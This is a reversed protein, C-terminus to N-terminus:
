DTEEFEKRVILFSNFFAFLTVGTQSDLTNDTMFSSLAMALFMVFLYDKYYFKLPYLFAFIFWIMGITGLAIGVSLFQNHSIGRTNSDLGQNDKTYIVNYALRMDGTGVGFIPHNKLISLGVKFYVFRQLLSSNNPNGSISYEEKEWFLQAIRRSVGWKSTYKYNTFGREINFLDMDSLQSLGVSDKRLGKSTLYRIITFKLAQGRQDNGEFDANSYTPWEKELEKYCVFNWVRHGNERYPVNQQHAYYNGNLTKVTLTLQNIPIESTHNKYLGNVYIFSILGGIVMASTVVTKVKYSGSKLLSRLLTLSLLVTFALYGTAVELLVMFFFLWIATISALLTETISWVKWKISIYYILIFISLTLMLGFRIHSIVTSLDRKDLIDSGTLGLFQMFGLVTGIVCALVFLMLIDQLRKKSPMKSTFLLFPIVLIPLKIRLDKFGQAVNETHIMGFLYIVFISILILSLRDTFFQKLRKRYDGELIWNGALIFTGVSVLFVSLPLGIAIFAM